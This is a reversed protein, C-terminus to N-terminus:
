LLFIKYKQCSKTIKMGDFLSILTPIFQQVHQILEPFLGIYCITVLKKKEPYILFCSFGSTSRKRSLNQDPVMDPCLLLLWSLHRRAVHQMQLRRLHPFRRSPQRPSLRRSWLSHHGQAMTLQIM